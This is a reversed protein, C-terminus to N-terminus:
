NDYYHIDAEVMPINVFKSNIANPEISVSVHDKSKGIGIERITKWTKKSGLASSFKAAYFNSKAQRIM